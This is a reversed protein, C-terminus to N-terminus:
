KLLAIEFHMGDQRTEFFGGWYFGFEGATKVLERVCGRQGMLAPRQGLGNWQANIDFATGFAHNSLKTKSGRIFRAVFAGDYALVRDLLGQNEWAQWLGQLQSAALRHFRMTQPARNGLATRLQPIEVNIIHDAEWGGLIRIAEKNDPTPASVFNYSGFIAARQSPGLPPFSPKTPFNSSTNDEAPEEILEFGLKAAVLLTQRGAVGDPELKNATQFARTADRTKEGFQGDSQGPDFGQGTLFSQWARVRLGTSGVRLAPLTSPITSPEAVPPADPPVVVVTSEGTAVLPFTRAVNLANNWRNVLGKWFKSGENRKAVDREYQERAARLGILLSSPDAEAQAMHGLTVQGVSGDDEIGLARQLIRAGGGKGRNFICDRLYSELAPIHTWATARDTEQAIFETALAEAEDYRRAEILAVLVDATEKNYRENIGAVEYRGGGDGKPLKYVVLHGNERRAEFDLIARAMRLRDQPTSM